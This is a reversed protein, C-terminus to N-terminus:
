TGISRKEARSIPRLQELIICDVPCPAVCLDCGTCEDRIVTHTFRAAGVIADVPCAAICIACGICAEEDIRAVSLPAQMGFAPTQVKQVAVLCGRSHLLWRMAGQPASISKQQAM